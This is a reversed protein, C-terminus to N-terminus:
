DVSPEKHSEEMQEGGNPDVDQEEEEDYEAEMNDRHSAASGLETGAKSENTSQDISKKMKGVSICLAQGM